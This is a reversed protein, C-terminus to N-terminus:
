EVHGYRAMFEKMLNQFDWDEGGKFLKNPALTTVKGWKSQIAKLDITKKDGTIVIVIPQDKIFKNYFAEIQAFELNDIKPMNVKAPDDIYGLKQWYDFTMSKNRFSPKDTLSSQRLYTKINELREPYLPMNRLLDMYVDVADAVKDGQTGVYGILYSDKGTLQPRAMYGYATYAMSRKERIENMVLGSFGGSFYQNFADYDVDAAIDYPRGNIYFYIKAQQMDSNPLFYITQKDYKVRDLIVPSESKALNEKLPLNNKCIDAVQDAATSGVFHIELEYGTADVIARTLDSITLSYNIDVNLEGNSESLNYSYMDKLPIRDIYESKDGYLVYQMLADSLTSPDKREIARSSRVSQIVSELKKNDLKPFLTQRTMLKCIEALNKEDGSISIYFYSESVSYSCTAGLESFQRRLDQAETNPQVGATNMLQAAYELNPMKQTGVGYKLVLSFIDNEKNETCFLTVDDYLKTKTVDAFNNYEEKVTGLPLANVKDDYATKSEKPPDLPQIEPKKLKNKKPTGEDISVTVHDGSLYKQAIRQVDNRTIANIREALTFYHEVPEDYAFAYTLINVKSSSNEFMLKTEQLMQAKVSNFLWDEFTGNKLKDLEKMIMKETAANSEYRYQSADFYPVAALLIRGLDRRKDSQAVAMSIDGDLMLKDFLGTNHRNNLMSLTFDLALADPDGEKVGNYGWVVQPYYGLKASYKPNGKFDTWTYQGRQPLEKPQLRGFYKEILPKVTETDFNGVLLLCMNNPVYWTNYFNILSSLSPNKLHEPLGIVDRAYPHGEYLKEMIFESIHTDNYDQYMNYEEFVNELEAQFSRFVPNILRESNVELWKEMQFAPFNNFYCTLDYSTFANLGEGGMGEILNSFDDTAGFKAAQMSVENIKKILETRKKQDKMPVAALEDYLRIIEEYLPKEKEWDLAGINATGKFLMHELYHALGTYDAPEDVAGARCVVRGHVDPLNQDEWLMITLGNDLKYESFGKRPDNQAFASLTLACLLMAVAFFRKKM